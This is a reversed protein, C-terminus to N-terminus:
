IAPLSNQPCPNQNNQNYNELSEGYLEKLISTKLAPKLRASRKPAIMEKASDGVAILGIGKAELVYRLRGYVNEAYHQPFALSVYDAYPLRATGQRIAKNVHCLKAEVMFLEVPGGKIGLIDVEFPSFKGHPLNQVTFYGRETLLRSIHPYLLSEKASSVKSAM